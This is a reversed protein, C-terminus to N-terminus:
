GLFELTDTVKQLRRRLLVHGIVGAALLGTVVAALVAPYPYVAVALVYASTAQLIAGAMMVLFMSATAQGKQIPRSFPIDPQIAVIALLMLNVVLAEVVIHLFAHAVNGFFWTFVLALCFLYPGLFYVLALNKVALILQARRAPTVFFVWSARYADSRSIGTILLAPFMVMAFYLLAANGASRAHLFPDQLGGERVGMFLYLITLPVISLVTLRFRQDHRFQASLLLAVARQEGRALRIAHARRGIKQRGESAAAQQSLLESYKLSLRAAALWALLVVTCVAVAAPVVELLSRRGVALDLFSAFWAPPYLLMWPSKRITLTQLAKMHFVNPLAFYAGYVAFSLILQLYTLLRKLRAPHVMQALGVYVVVVALTTATAALLFTPIAVLGLVPNFRTFPGSGLGAFFYAVAPLGGIAATMVITYFLVNALRAAFYTASSIPQFGLVDYDLPSIVVVAFEILVSSAVFFMVGSLALSGSLFVDPALLTFAALILGLMVYMVLQGLFRQVGGGGAPVQPSRFDLKIGAVVLARLQALDIDVRALCRAALFPKRRDPPQTGPQLPTAAMM